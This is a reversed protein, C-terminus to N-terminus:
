LLIFVLALILLEDSEELLLLFLVALIILRDNDIKINKFNFNRLFTTGFTEKPKVKEQPAEAKEIKYTLPADKPKYISEFQKLALEKQREFEIQEAKTM